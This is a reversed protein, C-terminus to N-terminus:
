PSTVRKWARVVAEYLAPSDKLAYGPDDGPQHEYEFITLAPTKYALNVIASYLDGANKEGLETVYIDHPRGISPFLAAVQRMADVSAALDSPAVGYPHFGFGDLPPRPWAGALLSTLSYTWPLDKGSTGSTIIKIGYKAILPAVRQYYQAYESVSTFGNRPIDAENSLEAYVICGPERQEYRAFFEDINAYLHEASNHRDDRFSPTIIMAKLGTRCLRHMSRDERVWPKKDYKAWGPLWGVRVYSAHLNDRIDTFAEDSYFKLLGLPPFQVGLQAVPPTQATLALAACLALVPRAVHEL